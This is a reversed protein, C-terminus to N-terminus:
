PRAEPRDPRLVPSVLEGRLAQTTPQYLRLLVAYAGRPSRLWRTGDPLHAPRAHQVLATATGPHARRGAASAHPAPEHRGDPLRHTSLTWGGRAHALQDPDLVLRYARDGRATEGGATPVLTTHVTQPDLRELGQAARIARDLEAAGAASGRLAADRILSEGLAAGRAVAGRDAHLLAAWGAAETGPDPQGLALLTHLQAPFDGPSPPVPTGPATRAARLDVLDLAARRLPARGALAVADVRVWDVEPGQRSGRDLVRTWPGTVPDASGATLVVRGLLDTVQVGLWAGAPPPAVTLVGPARTHVWATVTAARPDAWGAVPDVPHLVGPGPGATLTEILDALLRVAPRTRVYAGAAARVIEAHDM